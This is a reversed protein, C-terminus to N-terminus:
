KVKNPQYEHDRKFLVEISVIEDLMAAPKKKEEDEYFRKLEIFRKDTWEKLQNLERGFFKREEKDLTKIKDIHKSIIGKRRLLSIKTNELQEMNFPPSINIWCDAEPQDITVLHTEVKKYIKIM